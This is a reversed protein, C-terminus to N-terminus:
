YKEVDYSRMNIAKFTRM